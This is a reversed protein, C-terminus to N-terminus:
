MTAQNDDRWPMTFERRRGQTEREGGPVQFDRFDQRYRGGLLQGMAKKVSLDLVL